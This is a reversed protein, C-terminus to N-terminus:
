RTGPGVREQQLGPDMLLRFALLFVVFVGLSGWFFPLDWRGASGFLVAIVIGLLVLVRFTLAM